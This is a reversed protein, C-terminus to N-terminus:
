SSQRLNKVLRATLSPGDCPAGLYYGQAYDCGQRRLFDLQAASEVGEGVVMMDLAHGMGIIARAVVGNGAVEVRELFSKDVKMADIPLRELRSLASYGTGFDDLTMTIGRSRLDELAATVAPSARMAARETLELDLRSAEFGSKAILRDILDLLGANIQLASINVALRLARSGTAADWIRMQALSTTMVLETLPMILGSTEALSVIDIPAVDSGPWRVLAEVAHIRGDQLSVIPQYHVSLDGNELAHRLATLTLGPGPSPLMDRTYIQWSNRSEKARYQAADAARLVAEKTAGHEPYIAAGISCSVVVDRSEVALPAACSGLLVAAITALDDSGVLDPLVVAFEDGSLRAVVDSQRVAARLRQSIGCLVLDGFRHGYTDNIEKFRDLDIFLVAVRGTAGARELADTLRADFLARNPLGTLMDHLAMRQLEAHRRETLARILDLGTGLGAYRGERTVIFGDFVHRHQNAVLRAGLEDIHAGEDIILPAADMISDVTKKLILERGFPTALRELFKFRNILGIPRSQPDVIAVAFLGPDREFIDRAREGTADVRLPPVAAALDRAHSPPEKETLVDSLMPLHSTSAAM